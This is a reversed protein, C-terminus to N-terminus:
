EDGIERYIRERVSQEEAHTLRTEGLAALLAEGLTPEWNDDNSAVESLIRYRIGANTRYVRVQLGEGEPESLAIKELLLLADRPDTFDPIRAVLGRGEGADEFWDEPWTDLTADDLTGSCESCDPLWLALVKRKVENTM